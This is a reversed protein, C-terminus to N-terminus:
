IHLAGKRKPVFKFGVSGDKKRYPEVTLTEEPCKLYAEIKERLDSPLENNERVLM